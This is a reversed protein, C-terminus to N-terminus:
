LSSNLDRPQKIIKGQTASFLCFLLNFVAVVKKNLYISCSLASVRVCVASLTVIDPLSFAVLAMQSLKFKHEISAPLLCYGAPLRSEESSGDAKM